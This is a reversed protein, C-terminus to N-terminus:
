VVAYLVGVGETLVVLGAAITFLVALESPLVVASEMTVVVNDEVTLVLVPATHVM